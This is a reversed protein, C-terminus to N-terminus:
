LAIAFICKVHPETYKAFHFAFLIAYFKPTFINAISFAVGFLVIKM